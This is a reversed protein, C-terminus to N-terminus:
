AVQPTPLRGPDALLQATDRRPLIAERQRVRQEGTPMLRPRRHVRLHGPGPVPDDVATAQGPDVSEGGLDSPATLPQPGPEPRLEAQRGLAGHPQDTEVMGGVAQDRTFARGVDRGVGAVGVLGVQM